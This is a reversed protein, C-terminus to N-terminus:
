NTNQGRLWDLKAAYIAHDRQTSSHEMAQEMHHRAERLRGLRFNAQALWFHFEPNYAQRAVEKGFLDRAAAYDRAQMAQIGSNFFHYPPFPELNALRAAWRTADEVLGLEKLAGVLNGMVKANQPEHDLVAEFVQRAWAPRERRMYIVGLTNYGTLFASDQLIAERAYWYAEDLSGRAM